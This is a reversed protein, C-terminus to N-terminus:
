FYFYLESVEGKSNLKFYFGCSIEKDKLISTFGSKGTHTGEEGSVSYKVNSALKFTKGKYRKEVGNVKTSYIGSIKVTSGTLKISTVVAGSDMYKSLTTKYSAHCDANKLTSPTASITFDLIMDDYSSGCYDSYYYSYANKLKYKNEYSAIKKDYTNGTIQKLAKNDSPMDGAILETKNSNKYEDKCWAYKLDFLQQYTGGDVFLWKGNKIKYFCDSGYGQFCTSCMVMNTKPSYRIGDARIIDYKTGKATVLMTGEGHIGSTVVMEPISDNNIYEMRFSYNSSNEKKLEKRMFNKYAKRWNTAAQVEQLDSTVPLCTLSMALTLFLVTIKVIKTKM